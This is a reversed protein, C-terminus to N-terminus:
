RGGAWHRVRCRITVPGGPQNLCDAFAVRVAPLDDPHVVDFGTRCIRDGVARGLLHSALHSSFRLTGEADLLVVADSSKGVLAYLLDHASTQPSSM